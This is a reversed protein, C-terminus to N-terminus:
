LRQAFVKSSLEEKLVAWTSTLGMLVWRRPWNLPKSTIKLGRGWIQAILPKEEPEFHFRKIVQERGPSFIGDVNTFETIMLDPRGCTLVIRRFVSDTVDEMPALIFLSLYHIGFIKM